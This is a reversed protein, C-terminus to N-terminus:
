WGHRDRVAKLADALPIAEVEGSELEADRSRVEDSWASETESETELSAILREALRARQAASLKLAESEIQDVTM